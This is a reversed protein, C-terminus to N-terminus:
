LRVDINISWMFTFYVRFVRPLTQSESKLFPNWQLKFADMRSHIPAFMGTPFFLYIFAYFVNKVQKVCTWHALHAVQTTHEHRMM